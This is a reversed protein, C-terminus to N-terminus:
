TKTEDGLFCPFRKGNAFGRGLDYKCSIKIRSESCGVGSEGETKTEAISAHTYLMGVVDQAINYTEFTSEVPCAVAGDGV